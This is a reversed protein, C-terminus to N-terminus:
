INRYLVLKRAVFNWILVIAAAVVKSLMFYIGAIETLVYMIIETIGLGIVGIVGYVAFEVKGDKDSKQFVMLKSLLFNCVLGIIFAFIAAILYNVGIAEILFLSGGDALFAVGGVFIYRFFQILANSTPTIFLSKLDLKKIYDLFEKM